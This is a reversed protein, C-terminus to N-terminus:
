KENTVTVHIYTYVCICEETYGARDTNGGHTVGSLCNSNEESAFVTEKDEANRLRRSNETYPQPTM